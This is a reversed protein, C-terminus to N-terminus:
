LRGRMAVMGDGLLEGLPVDDVLFFCAGVEAIEVKPLVIARGSFVNVESKVRWFASSLLGLSEFSDHSGSITTYLDEIKGM